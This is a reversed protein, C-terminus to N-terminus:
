TANAQVALKYLFPLTRVTCRLVSTREHFWQQLPFTIHIAYESPKDTAKTVWCAIRMCWITMQPKSREASKKWMIECIAHSEFFLNSFTFHINKERGIKQVIEWELFFYNPYSLLHVKTKMYIVRFEQLIKTFSLNERCIKSFYKMALNWSFGDQPLPTAGNPRVPM